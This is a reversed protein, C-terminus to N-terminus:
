PLAKEDLDISEALALLQLRLHNSLAEGLQAAFLVLVDGARQLHRQLAYLDGGLKDRRELGPGAGTETGVVLLVDDLGLQAHLFDSAFPHHHHVIVRHGAQADAIGVLIQQDVVAVVGAQALVQLFFDPGSFKQDLAGADLPLRGDEIDRRLDHLPLARKEVLADGMQLREGHILHGLHDAHM